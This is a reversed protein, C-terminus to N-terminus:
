KELVERFLLEWTLKGTTGYEIFRRQFAILAAETKNGFDGDVVLDFEHKNLANQLQVVIEGKEGRKLLPWGDQVEPKELVPPEEPTMSDIVELMDVSKGGFVRGAPTAQYVLGRFSGYTGHEFLTMEATRRGIISRPRVWGMFQDAAKARNGANLSGTLKARAIGGTNYHFSVLADFEHQSISVTVARDVEAEYKAIDKKFLHFVYQLSHEKREMKEPDPEGAFRTHGVGFTWVGVSDKYPQTVAGEKAAIFALGKNSVKM